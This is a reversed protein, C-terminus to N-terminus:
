VALCELVATRNAFDEFLIEHEVKRGVAIFQYGLAASARKDWVEDGFYTRRSPAADRMARREALQMIATRELRDSATAFALQESSLGIGSLKLMATERWGGTAVAVRVGPLTCLTEVLAKAGPIERIAAPHRALYARTLEVFREKVTARANEIDAFEGDAILEELVGSDTVNRYSAWTEDVNVDLVERVAQAYLTGDFGASDVLTGDVDFMVLHTM